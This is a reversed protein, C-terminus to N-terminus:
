FGIIYLINKMVKYEKGSKIKSLSVSEKEKEAGTFNNFIDQGTKRLSRGVAVGVSEAQQVYRPSGYFGRLDSKYAALPSKFKM